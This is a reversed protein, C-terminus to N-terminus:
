PAKTRLVQRALFALDRISKWEGKEKLASATWFESHQPGSISKLQVHISELLREAESPLRKKGFYGKITQYADDFELALEDTCDGYGGKVLYSAQENPPLALTELAEKMLKIGMAFSESEEIM